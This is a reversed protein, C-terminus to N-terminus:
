PLDDDPDGHVTGKLARMRHEIDTLRVVDAGRVVDLLPTPAGAPNLVWLAQLITTQGIRPVLFVIWSGIVPVVTSCRAPM